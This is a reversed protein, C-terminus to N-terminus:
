VGYRTRAEVNAGAKILAAATDLDEQRAAWHLATMGDAQALNVDAKQDLLARVSARDQRMVADAIRADGHTAASGVLSFFLGCCWRQFMLFSETAFSDRLNWLTLPGSNVIM